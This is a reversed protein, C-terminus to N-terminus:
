FGSSRNPSQPDGCAMVLGSDSVSVAQPAMGYLGTGLTSWERGNWQAYSSNTAAAVGFFQGVMHLVGRAATMATVPGNLAGIQEWVSGNWRALNTLPAGNHHTFSGGAYLSGDMWALSTIVGGDAGEAANQFQCTKGPTREGRRVKRRSGSERRGRTREGRRTFVCAGDAIRLVGAGALAGREPSTLSHTQFLGASGSTPPNAIM